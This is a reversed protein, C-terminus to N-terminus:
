TRDRKGKTFKPKNKPKTKKLAEAQYILGQLQIEKELPNKAVYKQPTEKPKGIQLNLEFSFDGDTTLQAILVRNTNLSDVGKAGALCGWLGEKTTFVSGNTTKNFITIASDIGFISVRPPVGVLLGDRQKVPIGALPNENQLFSKEHVVTEVTDDDQKLIGYNFGAGAGASLWSDLMLTNEKLYDPVIVNPIIDGQSHNFFQTTTAIRLEHNKDGYAAQFRYGPLMDVFIRYTVSGIPLKGSFKNSATDNADSIYYKEVIISELGNQSIALTKILSFILIFAVRLM